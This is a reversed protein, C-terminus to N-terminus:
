ERGPRTRPGNAVADLLSEERNQLRVQGTGRDEIEEGAGSRTPDLRKGPSRGPGDENLTVGGCGSDDGLIQDPGAEGLPTGHSSGVRQGVHGVAGDGVTWEVDHQNVRRIGFRM